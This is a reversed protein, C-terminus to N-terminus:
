NGILQKIGNQNATSPSSVKTMNGSKRVNKNPKFLVVKLKPM